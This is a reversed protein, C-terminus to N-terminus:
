YSIAPTKLIYKDSEVQKLIFHAADARSIKLKLNKVTFNFGEQYDKTLEGKTFAGPRVLTWDLDSNMVYDEQLEHDLFVKKLFWGFMLKKWFFNLNANSDGAGLTTQCILRKVGNIKMGAIINKSGESRVKSKRNKGSGLAIIVIEQNKIAEAVQDADNVDGEISRLNPHKLKELSSINRNFTSIQHGTQLAQELIHKGLTGTAGFIIIRSM